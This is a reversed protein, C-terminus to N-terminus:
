EERLVVSPDVRTARRAPLWTALLTVGVLLLSIVLFTLPDTASLNFLMTQLVRTLILAAALGLAVGLAVLWMGQRLVLGLVDVSKAGLALRVGLERARQTVIFSMVGYLGIAALAAALGSFVALLVMSFRRSGTSDDVLQAMTNVNSLPLDPDVSKLATRVSRVQALPDGAGARVAYALFPIGFQRLPFYVQVRRDGDLGEHLTHRVVGVVEIWQTSPDAPDGRTIRKGIPDDNPWYRRVLEEDVITVPRSGPGDQETFHRGRLLQVDLTPLFGPTVIRIDGWPGPTNEPAQYGEVRFSGTSWSGGFPLVSTGGVGSVGPLAAIEASVREFLAVQSTDSPYKATPLAINFTLLQESRFGPDVRLLHAFSRIMLGAGALLTLALAVTGVVLGRRLRLGGRDVTAGRSGEKLSDHLNGSTIRLAPALGFLLGTVLAVLLTYGLVTADLRIDQSPPLNNPNLALLAPVGWIALLLGVLGGLLALLVSETLLQRALAGPSAGMAVRIAIERTRGAARALQLNAVNACAILLVLGVAGLLVWLARRLDGRAEENLTTVGLDWDPPYADTYESKLRGALGHMETQAQEPTVGAKLRGTFALFENTRRADSFQEPQFALPVWLEARRNWFARFTEPMVGVVEYSEGNLLLRQGLVTADGGFMRQWFGHSLVVVKDQGVEAEEPRLARGLLAAVGYTTFWDGTVQSARLREPDGRGTLNPAWGTEVAAYEFVQQQARYDRFGPVSVPAELNDLSPYLHEVTILRDPNQYPLPRLLVANIVSFIATNAGIGLGLTLISVAAFGPARTLTRVAYKLDQAFTAM